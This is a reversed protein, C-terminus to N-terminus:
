FIYKEYESESKFVYQWYQHLVVGKPTKLNFEPLGVIKTDGYFVPVAYGITKKVVSKTKISKIAM